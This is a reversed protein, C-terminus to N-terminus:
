RVTNSPVNLGPCRLIYSVIGEAIYPYYSKQLHMEILPHITTDKAKGQSMTYRTAFSKSNFKENVMKLEKDSLSEDTGPFYLSSYTFSLQTHIQESKKMGAMSTNIGVDYTARYDIDPPPFCMGILGFWSRVDVWQWGSGQYSVKMDVEVINDFGIVNKSTVVEGTTLLIKDGCHKQITDKIATELAARNDEDHAAVSLFLKIPEGIRCEPLQTHSANMMRFEATHCGQMAILAISAFALKPICKIVKM